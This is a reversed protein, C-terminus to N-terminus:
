TTLLRCNVQTSSDSGYSKLREYLKAISEAAYIWVVHDEEKELFRTMNVAVEINLRRQFALAIADDLLRVRNIVSFREPSSELAKALLKWNAVDYNVRYFGKSIVDSLETDDSEIQFKIFEHISRRKELFRIFCVCVCM